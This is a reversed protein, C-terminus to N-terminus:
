SLVAYETETRNTEANGTAITSFKRNQSLM